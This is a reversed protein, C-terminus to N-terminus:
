RRPDEGGSPVPQLPMDGSLGLCALWLGRGAQRARRQLERYLGVHRIDPPFTTVQALGEVLLQANVLTEGVWVYRLLRGYQDRESVDRELEVVQGGVLQGNRVTAEQGHCEALHAPQTEPADIGIYRVRESRGDILVEITDGDVVALVQAPTRVTQATARGSCVLSLLGLGLALIFRM